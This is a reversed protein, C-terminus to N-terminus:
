WGPSLARSRVANRGASSVLSSLLPKGRRAAVISEVKPHRWSQTTSGPTLASCGLVEWGLDPLLETLACISPSTPPETRDQERNRCLHAMLNICPRSWEAARM